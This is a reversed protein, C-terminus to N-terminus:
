PGGAHGADGLRHRLALHLELRADPDDLAAGFLRRLNRLRYRITQPHAHLAEATAVVQGQARLWAYLTEALTQQAAAGLTELPALARAALTDALDPEWTTLLTLLHDDCRLLGDGPLQGTQQLRLGRAALRYSHRANALPVSPGLSARRGTLARRLRPLRGPTEPDSIVLRAADDIVVGLLGGDAARALHDADTGDVCAIAVAAPLPWRAGEAAARLTAAPPPDPQVLLTVLRRRAVAWEQAADEQERLYGQAAAGALTDVYGFLAAALVYLEEPALTGLEVLFSWIERAGVTLTSRLADVRHGELFETRGLSRFVARTPELDRAPDAVAEVFEAVATEVGLALGRGQEGSLSRGQERMTARVTALLRIQLGASGARLRAGVHPSLEALRPEIDRVADSM